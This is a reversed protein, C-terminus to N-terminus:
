IQVVLVNKIAEKYFLGVTHDMRTTLPSWITWTAPNPAEERNRKNKRRNETREKKGWIRMLQRPQPPHNEDRGRDM